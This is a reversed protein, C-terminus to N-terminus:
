NPKNFFFSFNLYLWVIGFHFKFFQGRSKNKSIHVLIYNVERIKNINELKSEKNKNQSSSLITCNNEYSKNFKNGFLM